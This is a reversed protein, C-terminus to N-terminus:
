ALWPNLLDVGLDAIDATNRTVLTLRHAVATAALLSDIAPLTRGRHFDGWVHAVAADVALLQNGMALEWDNAWLSLSRAALKDSRRKLAIGKRLEALTM